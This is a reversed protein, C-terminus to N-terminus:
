LSAPAPNRVSPILREYSATGEVSFRVGEKALYPLAFEHVAVEGTGWSKFSFRGALFGLARREAERDSFRIVIM